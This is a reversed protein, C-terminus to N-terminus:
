RTPVQRFCSSDYVGVFVVGSLPINRGRGKAGVGDRGSSADCVLLLGRVVGILCGRDSSRNGFFYLELMELLVIKCPLDPALRAFHVKPHRAGRNWAWKWSCYAAANNVRIAPSITM